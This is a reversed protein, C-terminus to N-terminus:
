AAEVPRGVAVMVRAAVGPPIMRLARNRAVVAGARELQGVRGVAASLCAVAGVRRRRRRGLAAAVDAAGDRLVSLLAPVDELAQAAGQGVDPTMGHAADGILVVNGSGYTVGALREISHHQVPSAEDIVDLAARGPGRFEAFRRRFSGLPEQREADDAPPGGAVSREVFFSYLRDGALPVLGIRRGHGWQQTVGRAAGVAETVVRWVDYGAPVVTPAGDQLTLGRVASRLGDAGVVLDVEQSSGDSLTVGIRAGFRLSEVTTGMRLHVDLGALLAAHLQARHIALLADRQGMDLMVHGLHDCISVGSMHLGLDRVSTGVGLRDLVALANPALMIGAGVPRWRPVREVVTVQAGGSALARAATLGAIGGGVVLVDKGAQM